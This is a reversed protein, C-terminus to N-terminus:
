QTTVGALKSLYETVQALEEVTPSEVLPTLGAEVDASLAIVSCGESTRGHLMPEGEEDELPTFGLRYLERIMHTWSAAHLSVPGNVRLDDSVKPCVLLGTGYMAEVYATHAGLTLTTVNM